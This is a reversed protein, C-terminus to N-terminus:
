YNMPAFFCRIQGGVICMAYGSGKSIGPQVQSGTLDVDLATTYPGPNIARAQELTLHVHYGNPIPRISGNEIWAFPIEKCYSGGCCIQGLSDKTGTFVDHAFSFPCSCVSIAAAWTLPRLFAIYSRPSNM